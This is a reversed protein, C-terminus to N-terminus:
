EGLLGLERKYTEKALIQVLVVPFVDRWSPRLPHSQDTVGAEIVVADVKVPLFLLVLVVIM